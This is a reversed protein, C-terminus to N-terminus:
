LHIHNTIGPCKRTLNKAVGIKDGAVDNSGIVSSLPNMYFVKITIEAQAGAGEICYSSRRLKFGKRLSVIEQGGEWKSPFFERVM